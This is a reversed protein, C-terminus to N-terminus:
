LVLVHLSKEANYSEFSLSVKQVLRTLTVNKHTIDQHLCGQPLKPERQSLGSQCIMSYHYFSIIIQRKALCNMSVIM